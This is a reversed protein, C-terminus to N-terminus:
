RAYSLHSPAVKGIPRYDSACLWWREGKPSYAAAIVDDGNVSARIGSSLQISDWYSPVVACADGRKGRFECVGGFNVSVRPTGIRFDMMKYETYNRVVDFKESDIEGPQPCAAASFNRMIRQWDKINTDSFDLLFQRSMEGVENASDHLSLTQSASVDQSYIKPGSPYGYKEVVKLTITVPLPTSADDPARWTVKPGSGDFTGVPASWQFELEEVPTEDDHVTATLDITEGLDAFNVPEKSRRGKVTLSDIMTPNNPPAPAVPQPTFQQPPVAPGPSNPSGGCAAMVVAASVGAVILATRRDM